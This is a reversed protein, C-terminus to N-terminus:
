GRRNRRQDPLQPPRFWAPLQERREPSVRQPQLTPRRKISRRRHRRVEGSRRGLRRSSESVPGDQADRLAENTDRLDYSYEVAPAPAPQGSMMEPQWGLLGGGMSGGLDESLDLQMGGLNAEGTPTPKDEERKGDQRDERQRDDGDDQDGDEQDLDVDFLDQADDQSDEDDQGDQGAQSGSRRGAAKRRSAGGKRSKMDPGPRYEPAPTEQQQDVELAHDVSQSAIDADTLLAQQDERPTTM